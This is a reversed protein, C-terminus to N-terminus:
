KSHGKYHRIDHWFKGNSFVLILRIYPSIFFKRTPLPYAMSGTQISHVSPALYIKAQPSINSPMFDHIGGMRWGAGLCNRRTCVFFYWPRLNLEFILLHYINIDHKFKEVVTIIFIIDHRILFLHCCLYLYIFFPYYITKQLSASLDRPFKIKTSSSISISSLSNIVKLFVVWDLEFLDIKL